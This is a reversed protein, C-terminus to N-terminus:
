ASELVPDSHDTQPADVLERHWGELVLLTWIGQSNDASGRVHDALMAEVRDSRFYGRGRATDDLLIDSAYDRLEGRLWDALPPQFGRKPADLIADPLRGRMARRLGVKKENGRIKLEPPLSAAFEMFQHDLM